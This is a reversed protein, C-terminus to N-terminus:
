QRTERDNRRTSVHWVLGHVIVSGVIHSDDTILHGTGHVQALVPMQGSEATWVQVMGPDGDQCAVLTVPGGGIEHPRDDVPVNWKLVRM